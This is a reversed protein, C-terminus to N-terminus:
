PKSARRLVILTTGSEGDTHFESPRAVRDPDSTLCLTLSDGDLKYIALLVYNKGSEDKVNLDIAKPNRSPDLRIQAQKLATAPGFKLTAGEFELTFQLSELDAATANRGRVQLSTALWRGQLKELEQRALTEPGQLCTWALLLGTWM